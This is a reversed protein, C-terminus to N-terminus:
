LYRYIIDVYKNRASDQDGCPILFHIRLVQGLPHETRSILVEGHAFLHQHRMHFVRWAEISVVHKCFVLSPRQDGGHPM